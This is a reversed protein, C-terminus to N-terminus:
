SGVYKLMSSFLLNRADEVSDMIRRTANFSPSWVNISSSASDIYYVESNIWDVAIDTINVDALQLVPQLSSQDSHYLPASFILSDYDNWSFFYLEQMFNFCLIISLSITQLVRLNMTCSFPLQM